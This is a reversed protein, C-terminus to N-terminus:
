IIENYLQRLKDPSKKIFSGCKLARIYDAKYMAQSNNKISTLDKCIHNLIISTSQVSIEDKVFLDLFLPIEDDKCSLVDSDGSMNDRITKLDETFMYSLGDKYGEWKYLWRIGENYDECVNNTYAINAIMYDTGDKMTKFRKSLSLIFPKEPSTAYKYRTIKVRDGKKVNFKYQSFHKKAELYTCYLRYDDIM